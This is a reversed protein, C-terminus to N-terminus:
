NAPTFSWIENGNLDFAVLLAEASQAVPILVLDGVMVPTSPLSANELNVSRTWLKSGDLSFAIVDGAHTVMIFGEETPTVAATVEAGSDASWNLSGDTSDLVFVEGSANTVVVVGDIVVPTAWTFDKIDTRWLISGDSTDLALAEMNLTAIYLVDDVLAPSAAIAGAVDTKWSIDGSNADFAYVNHDLSPVYVTEGDSIASAWNSQETEISYALDGNMDLAYINYDASPAFLMNNAFAISGVFKDRAEEFLWAESGNDANIAHVSNKYDGAVVLDGAVTPATFFSVGRAAKEPYSWVLSGSKTSIAYVSSGAALYVVENEADATIGPWSTAAALSSSTCSSILMAGLLTLLILTLVKKTM